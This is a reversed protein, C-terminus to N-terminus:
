KLGRKKRAERVEQQYVINEVLPLPYDTFNGRGKLVYIGVSRNLQQQVGESTVIDPFDEGFSRLEILDQPVGNKTLYNNVMEARKLALNQNRLKKGTDDAGGVILLHYNGSLNLLKNLLEIMDKNAKDNFKYSNLDFLIESRSFEPEKVKVKPEKDKKLDDVYQELEDILKYFRTKCYSLDSTRFIEKSERSIWCDYLYTLHATQIPLHFTIHPTDLVAELRKQMLIMEEMQLPDANWKRPDEPVLYEDRAAILGKKAFYESDQTQKAAALNRSLELYELALYSNYGGQTKLNKEGMAIRQIHTTKPACSVASIFVIVSALARLNM